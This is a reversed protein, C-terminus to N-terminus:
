DRPEDGRAPVDTSLVGDGDWDKPGLVCGLGEPACQYVNSAKSLDIGLQENLARCPDNNVTCDKVEFDDLGLLSCGSSLVVSSLVVSSPVLMSLWPGRTM